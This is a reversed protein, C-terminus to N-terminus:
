SEGKPLRRPQLLRVGYLSIIQQLYELLVRVSLKTKGAFRARFVIPVEAMRMPGCRVLIELAIKFGRPNLQRRNLLSRRFAFFGSMPDTTQTVPRALITAGLSVIRRFGGLGGASGGDIWRSGIVFQAQGKQIISVMAPITAPDHSGDADMVVVIEGRAIRLGAMVASALGQKGRRELVRYPIQGSAGRAWAATGDPSSDDVIVVESPLGAIVNQLEPHLLALSERENYTPLVISVLPPKETPDSEIEDIPAPSSALGSQGSAVDSLFSEMRFATVDWDFGRAYDILSDYSTRIPPTSDAIAGCLSKALDTICGDKALYKRSPPGVSEPLCSTNFAVTPVGCAAAETISLGWGEASSPQVNVWARRLWEVVEATRLFGLFDTSEAVRAEAAVRRLRPTDDGDGIIVFRAYPFRFLVERFALIALDVRKYRKLRGVYIIVPTASQCDRVPFYVSHDVGPLIKQIRHREVGIQILANITSDSETIVPSSKHFWKLSFRESLWIPPGFILPVESMLLKGNIHRVFQVVPISLGPCLVWPIPKSFDAIVVDFKGDFSKSNTLVWPHLMGRAAPRVIQVGESVEVESSGRFREAYLTVSHGRDALRRGVEHITREAGGALPNQWDLQNLWAIRLSMESRQNITAGPGISPAGERLIGALPSM